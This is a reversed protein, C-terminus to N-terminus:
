IEKAELRKRVCEKDCCARENCYKGYDPPYLIKLVDLAAQYIAKGDQM